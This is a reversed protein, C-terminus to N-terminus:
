ERFNAIALAGFAIGAGVMGLGDGSEFTHVMGAIGAWICGVRGLISLRFLWNPNEFQDNEMESM